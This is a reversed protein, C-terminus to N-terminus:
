KGNGSPHCPFQMGNNIYYSTRFGPALEVTRQNKTMKNQCTQEARTTNCVFTSVTSFNSPQEEDDYIRSQYDHDEFATNVCRKATNNCVVREVQRQLGKM